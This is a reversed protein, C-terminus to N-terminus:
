ENSLSFIILHENDPDTKGGVMDFGNNVLLRTSPMNDRHTYAELRSLGAEDRAFRIVEGLAEAMFGQGQAEPFLEYGLEAQQRDASINWICITGILEPSKARCIVWYFSQNESISKRIKRIFEIVEELNGPANRELYKNVEPHSRLRLLIESDAEVPSRLCLRTTKLEPQAYM